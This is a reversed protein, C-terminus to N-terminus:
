MAIVRFLLKALEDERSEDKLLRLASEFVPGSLYQNQEPTLSRNTNLFDEITRQAKRGVTTHFDLKTETVIGSRKRLAFDIKWSGVNDPGIERTVGFTIQWNTKPSVVGLTISFPKESPQSAKLGGANPHQKETQGRLKRLLKSLEEAVGELGGVNPTSIGHKLRLGYPVYTESNMEDLYVPVVRHKSKDERAMQIASAIEERQYYARDTNSSILVVTILSSSQAISLVEDWDDGYTLCRSDLFVKAREALLDYLTEAAEKDAGAHALFLDWQSDETAM